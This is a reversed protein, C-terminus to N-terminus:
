EHDDGLTVSLIGKPNGHRDHTFHNRWFATQDATWSALDHGPPYVQVHYADVKWRRISGNGTTYDEAINPLHGSPVFNVVDIDKPNQMKTIFSGDIWQTFRIAVIGSFDSLYRSWGHYIDHRTSSDPFPNVFLDKIEALTTEHIDHPQLNGQADHYFKPVTLLGQGNEDCGGGM